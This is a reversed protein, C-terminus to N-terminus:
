VFYLVDIDDGNTAADFWFTSLDIREDGFGPRSPAEITIRQGPVLIIGNSVTVDGAGDNGFVVNGANALPAVFTVERVLTTATVVQEATGATDVNVRLTRVAFNAM